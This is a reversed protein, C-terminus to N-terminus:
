FLYSPARPTLQENMGRVTALGQYTVYVRHGDASAAVCIEADVQTQSEALKCETSGVSLFLRPLPPPASASM